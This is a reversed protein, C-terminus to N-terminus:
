CTANPLEELASVQKSAIIFKVRFFKRDGEQDKITLLGQTYPELSTKTTSCKDTMPIWDAIEVSSSHNGPIQKVSALTTNVYSNLTTPSALLCPKWSSLQLERLCKHGSEFETAILNAASVLLDNGITSAQEAQKVREAELVGLQLSVTSLTMMMSGAIALPLLYGAERPPRRGLNDALAPTTRKSVRRLQPRWGSFQNVGARAKENRYLYGTQPGPAVSIEHRDRRM